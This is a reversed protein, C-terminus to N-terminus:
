GHKKNEKINWGSVKEAGLKGAADQPKYKMKIKSFNLSFHEQPHAQEIHHSTQFSSVLFDELEVTLYTELKDKNTGTKTFFIEGKKFHTGAACAAMLLHSSSDMPKAMTIDHFNVVGSGGGTGTAFTGSNNAGKSYSTIEIEQKHGDVESEGKLDDCKFFMTHLAM